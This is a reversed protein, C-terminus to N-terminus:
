RSEMKKERSSVSRSSRSSRPYQLLFGERKKADEALFEERKTLDFLSMIFQIAEPFTKSTAAHVIEKAHEPCPIFGRLGVADPLIHKCFIQYNTWKAGPQIDAVFGM